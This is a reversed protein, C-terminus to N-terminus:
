ITRAKEGKEKGGRRTKKKGEGKGEKRGKKQELDQINRECSRKWLQM